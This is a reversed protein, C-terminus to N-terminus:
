EGKSIGSFVFALGLFILFLAGIYVGYESFIVGLLEPAVLLLGGVLIFLSGLFVSFLSFPRVRKFVFEEHEEEEIEEGGVYRKYLESAIFGVGMGILVGAGTQGFIMGIGLGLFMCGVFIGSGRDKSM